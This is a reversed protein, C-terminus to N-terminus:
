YNSSAQKNLTSRYGGITKCSGKCPDVAGGLIRLLDNHLLKDGVKIQKIEEKNKLIIEKM